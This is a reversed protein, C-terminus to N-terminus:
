SWTDCESNQREGTQPPLAGWSLSSDRYVQCVDFSVFKHQYECWCWPFSITGLATYWPFFKTGLATYWPFVKTRPATVWPLVTERPLTHNFHHPERLRKRHSNQPQCLLADQSLQLESLLAGHPISHNEPSHETPVLHPSAWVWQQMIATTATTASLLDSTGATGDGETYTWKYSLVWNRLIFGPTAMEMLLGTQSLIGERLYHLVGNM